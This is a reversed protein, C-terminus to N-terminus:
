QQKKGSYGKILWKIVFLILAVVTVITLLFVLEPVGFNFFTAFINM